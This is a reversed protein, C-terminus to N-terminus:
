SKNGRYAKVARKGILELIVNSTMIEYPSTVIRDGVSRAGFVADIKVNSETVIDDNFIRGFVTKLQNGFVGKDGVGAGIDSTIYVRICAEDVLLPDAGIRFDSNVSGTYAKKGASTNRKFMEKDSATVLSRLSESMDEVDGNYYVEVREIVGRVKAAPVNNSLSRLTNVTEDDLLHNRASIEDEIVCLPDEADVLTGVKVMQHIGQSFGIIIDKIKTSKTTLRNSLSQSIAASDELTDPSEMLVTRVLMSTKWIVQRKDLIDREFFEPNYAIAEGVAITDGKKLDTIVRHAITVGSANGYRRGLEVGFQTGDENQIIIGTDTLGVVTGPQKATTCFLDGTRHPIVQEGGTRLMSQTYAECPVVHAAQISAFNVRKPDDKTSGPSSLANTSLLSTAGHIKQNYTDSTGRLSNFLPNASTFVNIAVDSSDVTSESITGEDSKPYIRTRKVMSRSSRGGLGSFTVAEQEKLYKIPNIESVQDKAPDQQIAIWVAYPNLDLGYRGKGPKSSHVRVAKVLEGYLIGAFREYGKIRMYRSDLEHPHQDTCLLQACRIMLERFKTPEKMEILLDRTIPDVFMAELADLERLYRVGMKKSELVNFYVDKKDFETSPFQAIVEKYDSLGGFVMCAMSDKRDFVWTEDDFVVRWEDAALNAREGRPVIRPKIKLKALLAKFGMMYGLVLGLPITKSFVQLEAFEVPARTMDLGFVEELTGISEAANGKVIYWQRNVDTAIVKGDGSLGVLTAKNEKAWAISAASFIEPIKSAYFQCHFVQGKVDLDFSRFGQAIVTYDRVGPNESEFASGPVAETIVPDVTAIAKALLSQKVWKGYNGSRRETRDVFIKNGYYSSLAVRSPTVKRIPLDGRQMRTVYKTGSVSFCNDKDIKPIMFRVTTAIGVIPKIKIAYETRAGTIDEVDTADFDTICYGANLLNVVMSSIDRDMVNKSYRTGFDMLTSTLMTKDVITDRDPIKAREVIKLKDPTIKVFESLVEGKFEISEIRHADDGLKRYETASIYGEDAARAVLRKFNDIPQDPSAFGVAADKELIKMDQITLEADSSVQAQNLDSPSVEADEDIDQMLSADSVNEEIEQLTELDLEIAQEMTEDVFLNSGEDQTVETPTQYSAPQEVGGSQNWDDGTSGDEAEQVTEIVEDGLREDIDAQRADMVGMLMRLFRKQVAMPIAGKRNPEPLTPNEGVGKEWHTIEDRTAGRMKDLVGLNLLSWRGNECIVLNLENCVENLIPTLPSNERLPGLWIWIQLLFYLNPDAYKKMMVTTMNAQAKNLDNPTPIFRPLKMQLFQNYGKGAVREITEFVTRVQNSTRYYASNITKPYKYFHQLAAYNEVVIVTPDKRANYLDVMPKFRQNDRRWVRIMAGPDGTIRRPNGEFHALEMVHEIRFPKRNRNFLFYGENPGVELPSSPMYHVLSFGPLQMRDITPLPPKIIQEARRIGFRKYFDIYKLM